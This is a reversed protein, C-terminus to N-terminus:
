ESGFNMCTPGSCKTIRMRRSSRVMGRPAAGCRPGRCARSSSVSATWCRLPLRAKNSVVPRMALFTVELPNVKFTDKWRM